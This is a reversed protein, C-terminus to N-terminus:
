RQGNFVLDLSRKDLLDLRLWVQFLDSPNRIFNINGCSLLVTAVHDLRELTRGKGHAILNVRVGQHISGETTSIFGQNIVDGRPQSGLTKRERTTIDAV